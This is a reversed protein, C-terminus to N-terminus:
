QAAGAELFQEYKPNNLTREKYFKHRIKFLSAHHLWNYAIVSEYFSLPIIDDTISLLHLARTEFEDPPCIDLDRRAKHLEKHYVYHAEHVKLLDVEEELPKFDALDKLFYSIAM